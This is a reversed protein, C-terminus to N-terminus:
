FDGGGGGFDGGGGGGWDGGGGGWDGGGGGGSWDGGGGGGGGSDAGQDYGQAYGQDFGGYGGGFGGGWGYHPMLLDALLLGGFVGPMVSGFGGYYGGAWPAYMPGANWYPVQQGGVVLQRVDPNIGRQVRDLDAACVPVPRPAGGDPAYDVDAVSPGHQPNFFCPPRREPIARGSASATTAALAWRGEELAASVGRLDEPRRAVALAQKAHDYAGLSQEYYQRAEPQASNIDFNLSTVSEGLATVDEDAAQRVQTFERAAIADRRRKRRFALGGFVAALVLIVPLFWGVSNDAAGPAATHTGTGANTNSGAARELTRVDGALAVGLGTADGHHAATDTAIASALSINPVNHGQYSVHQDGNPKQTIAVYMGTRGATALQSADVSTSDTTPFVAVFTTNTGIADTITGANADVGPAVYVKQGSQFATVAATIQGADVAYAPGVALATAAAAVAVTATL